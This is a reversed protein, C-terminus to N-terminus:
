PVHLFLVPCCSDKEIVEASICRFFVLVRDYLVKLQYSRWLSFFFGVNFVNDFYLCSRATLVM